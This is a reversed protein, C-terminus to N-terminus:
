TFCEWIRVKMSVVERECEVKRMEINIKEAMKRADYKNRRTCPLCRIVVARRSSGNGEVDGIWLSVIVMCATHIICAELM